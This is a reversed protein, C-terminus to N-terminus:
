RARAEVLSVIRDITGLSEADAEHAPITIGFTSELFSVLRLLALSDIIGEMLPTSATLLEPDEGPLFEDLIFQKVTAATTNRDAM